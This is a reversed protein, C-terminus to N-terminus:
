PSRRVSAPAPWRSAWRWRWNRAKSGNSSLNEFRHNWRDRDRRRLHRLRYGGLAGAVFYRFRFHDRECRRFRKRDGLVQYRRRDGHDGHVDARHLPRGDQRPDDRRLHADAPLRQVLRLCQYFIRLRQQELGNATRADAQASGDRRHHFIRVVDHLRGWRWCSGLPGYGVRQDEKTFSSGNIKRKPKNDTRCADRM